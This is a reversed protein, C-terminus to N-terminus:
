FMMCNFTKIISFNLKKLCLKNLYHSISMFLFFIKIVGKQLDLLICGQNIDSANRFEVRVKCLPLTPLLVGVM